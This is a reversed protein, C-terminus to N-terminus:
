GVFANVGRVNFETIIRPRLVVRTGPLHPFEIVIEVVERDLAPRHHDRIWIVNNRLGDRIHWGEAAMHLSGQPIDHQPMPDVVRRRISRLRVTGGDEHQHLTHDFLSVKSVIIFTQRM